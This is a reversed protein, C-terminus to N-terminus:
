VMAAIREALKKALVGSAGSAASGFAKARLSPSPRAVTEPRDAMRALANAFRRARATPRQRLQQRRVLLYVSTGGLLAFGLAGALITARHRRFQLRADMLERRRVDLETVIEAVIRRNEEIDRRLAEKRVAPSPGKAKQARKWVRPFERKRYPAPGGPYAPSEYPASERRGGIASRGGYTPLDGYGSRDGYGPRDGYDPRDGHSAREGRPEVKAAAATWELDAAIPEGGTREVRTTGEAM